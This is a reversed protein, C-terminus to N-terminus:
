VINKNCSPHDKVIKLIKIELKFQDYLESSVKLIKLAYKRNHKHDMVELM